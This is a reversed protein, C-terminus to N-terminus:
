IHNVEQEIQGLIKYMEQFEEIVLKFETNPLKHCKQAIQNLYKMRMRKLLRDLENPHHRGPLPEPM